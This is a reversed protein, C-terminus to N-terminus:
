GNLSFEFTPNAQAFVELAQTTLFQNGVLEELLHEKLTVGYIGISACKIFHDISSLSAGLIRTKLRYNQFIQVITKLTQWPDEGNKEIHSLYPAVYDAGALAAMLAQHPYFITTAITPIGQRSLLQITELGNQTVPVKVIIRNSFSYLNQGQQVMEFIKDEDVQVAIPGEQEHLLDKLLNKLSRGSLAVVSPNTTVGCLLGLRTAKKISQTDATDLWIEM